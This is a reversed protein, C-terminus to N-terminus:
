FPKVPTPNFPKGWGGLDCVGEWLLLLIVRFGENHIITYHPDQGYVRGGECGNNPDRGIFQQDTYIYEGGGGLDCVGRLM